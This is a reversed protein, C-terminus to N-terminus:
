CMGKFLCTISPATLGTVCSGGNKVCTLTSQFGETFYHGVNIFTPEGTANWVRTTESSSPGASDQTPTRTWGHKECVLNAM